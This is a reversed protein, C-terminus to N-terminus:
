EDEVEVIERLQKAWADLAVRREDTYAHRDYVGAVSSDVHGLTKEVIHRPIGLRHLHTSATRRLDHPSFPEVQVRDLLARKVRQNLATTNKQGGKAPFVFGTKDAIRRLRGVVFAALPVDHPPSIRQGRVRKRYGRPMEWTGHQDNAKEHPLTVHAWKMQLVEGPRQGTALILWLADAAWQPVGETDDVVGFVSRLEDETLWRKEGGRENFRRPLGKVPNSVVGGRRRPAAWTYVASLVTQARNCMTRAGRKEIRDLWKAVDADTVDKAPIARLDQIDDAELIRRYEDNTRPALEEAAHDKLYHSILDGLTDSGGHKVARNARAEGLPDLGNHIQSRLEGAYTRAASLGYEDPYGGLKMLRPANTSKVRYYLMWTRTGTEWVRLRLGRGDSYDRFGTEPIPLNDIGRATLPEIKKPM